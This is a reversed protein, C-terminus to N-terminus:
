KDVTGVLTNIKGEKKLLQSLITDVGPVGILM